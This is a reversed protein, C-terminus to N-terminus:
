ATIHGAALSASARLDSRLKGVAWGIFVLDKAMELLPWIIFWFLLAAPQPSAFGFGAVSASAQV